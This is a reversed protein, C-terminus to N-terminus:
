MCTDRSKLLRLKLPDSSLKSCNQAYLSPGQMIRPGICKKQTIHVFKGNKAIKAGHSTHNLNQARLISGQSMRLRKYKKQSSKDGIEIRLLNLVLAQMDYRIAYESDKCFISDSSYLIMSM